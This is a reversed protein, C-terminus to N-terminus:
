ETGADLSGCAGSVVNLVALADKLAPPAGGPYPIKGLAQGVAVLKCANTVDAEAVLLDNGVTVLASACARAAAPDVGSDALDLCAQGALVYADSVLAQTTQVDSAAQAPTCAQVTLFVMIAGSTAAVTLAIATLAKAAAGSVLKALETAVGPVNVGAHALFGLFPQLRPYAAARKYVMSALAGTVMLDFAYHTSLFTLVTSLLPSM